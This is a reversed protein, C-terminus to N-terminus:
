RTVRLYDNVLDFTRIKRKVGDGGGSSDSVAGVDGTNGEITEIAEADARGCGVWQGEVQRVWRRFMGVHDFTYRVLDGPEPISVRKIGFVGLFLAVAAWARTVAKSGANRYCFAVFDGCWPEGLAGGNAEIIKNVVKGVNNGGEEVVGVLREAQKLARVRLPPLHKRRLRKIFPRRKRDNFREWRTRKDAGGNAGANRIVKQVYESVKHEEVVARYHEGSLGLAYVLFGISRFEREADLKGGAKSRKWDCGRHHLERNTAVRLATVDPGVAGEHIGRHVRRPHQKSRGM